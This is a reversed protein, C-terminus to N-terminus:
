WAVFQYTGPLFCWNNTGGGIGFFKFGNETKLVYNNANESLSLREYKLTGFVKKNFVRKSAVMDPYIFIDPFYEINNDTKYADNIDATICFCIFNQFSNEVTVEGQYEVGLEDKTQAALTFTGTMVNGSSIETHIGTIKEGSGDIAEYGTQINAAGAPNTLIPLKKGSIIPNHIM